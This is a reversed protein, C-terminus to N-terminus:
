SIIELAYGKQIKEPKAEFKKRILKLDKEPIAM